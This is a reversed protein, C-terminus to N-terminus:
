RNRPNARTSWYSGVPEPLAGAVRAQGLPRESRPQPIVPLGQGPRGQLFQTDFGNLASQLRYTDDNGLDGVAGLLAARGIGTRHRLIVDFAGGLRGEPHWMVLGPGAAAALGPSAEPVLHLTLNRLGETDVAVRMAAAALELRGAGRVPFGGAVEGAREATGPGVLYTVVTGTGTNALEAAAAVTVVLPGRDAAAVAAAAPAAAASEGSAAVCWARTAGGRALVERAVEVSLAGIDAATGVRRVRVGLGVIEAVVADTIAPGVIVVEDVALRVLEESTPVPLANRGSLLAPGELVAALPKAMSAVLLDAEDTIVATGGRGTPYRQRSLAAAVAPASAERVREVPITMVRPDNACSEVICLVNHGSPCYGHAFPHNLRCCDCIKKLGGNSCCGGSAYWCWGWVNGPGTCDFTPCPPAVGSQGCVRAEAREALLSILAPGGAVLVAVKGARELFSRRTTRAALRRGVREVAADFGSRGAPGLRDQASM